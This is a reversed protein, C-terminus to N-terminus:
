SKWLRSCALANAADGSSFLAISFDPTLPAGCIQYVVFLVFYCGVPKIGVCFGPWAGPNQKSPRPSAVRRRRHDSETIALKVASVQLRYCFAFSLGDFRAARRGSGTMWALAM